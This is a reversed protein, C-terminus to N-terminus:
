VTQAKKRQGRMFAYWYASGVFIAGGVINGLTVPLLNVTLFRAWTLSELNLDAAAVGASKLFLGMPIFYMNAVCHEYGLAVFAMIPFFIALVKGAVDKAALAMWVALCVLWNCGIGRFFAEGFSLNVKAYAIGVAKAGVAGGAMKWLNSEYMIYALLVSGIFNAAFVVGWRGLMRGWGYENGLVSTIMLNNGTFLEAGAIVVLMLGVSFVSGVLVQGIGVGVVKAADHGVLTAMAAGFGIYAGALVGLVLVNLLSVTAKKVGIGKTVMEAVHQPSRHEFDEPRTAHDKIEQAVRDLAIAAGAEPERILAQSVAQVIETPTFPKRVYDCVGLRVAEAATDVAGYGTIIVVAMNGRNQRATRVIEMGDTDPMKLDVLACDFYGCRTRELGEKGTGVAEVEYGADGLVRQCSQRVTADDDVVLVRKPAVM